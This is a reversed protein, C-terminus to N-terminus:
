KERNVEGLDDIKECIFTKFYKKAGEIEEKSRLTWAVPFGGLFACFRRFFYKGHIHEYSIFDPRALFNYMLAGLLKKKFEGKPFTTSLQGRMIEPRNKRYWFLVLPYFSQIWYVGKYESLIKDAAECLKVYSPDASKFEILLPVRGKVTDLCEKLTPIREESDALTLEKIEALTMDEPKKDIGCMRLLSDDHFVVVEGDKTLHIDNEIALGKQSALEFAALSNEPIMKGDSGKSIGHLGRHAIYIGGLKERDPHKRAAPAIAFVFLSILLLIVASIIIFPM